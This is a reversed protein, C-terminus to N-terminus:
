TPIAAWFAEACSSVSSSRLRIQGLNRVTVGPLKAKLRGVFTDAETSGYEIYSDGLVVIDASDAARQNRFGDKDMIWEITYPQVEVGYRPSYQAGTFDNIIRRNFPKEKFVLEPDPIYHAKYAYYGLINDLHTVSILSPFMELLCFLLVSTLFSSFAFLLLGGANRRLLWIAIYAAILWLTGHALVEDARRYYAELPTSARGAM